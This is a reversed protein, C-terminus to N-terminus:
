KKEVTNEEKKKIRIMINRRLQKEKQKTSMLIRKRTTYRRPKVFNPKLKKLPEKMLVFEKIM